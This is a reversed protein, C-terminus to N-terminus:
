IINAIVKINYPIYKNIDTHTQIYKCIINLLIFMGNPSDYERYDDDEEVYPNYNGDRKPCCPCNGM